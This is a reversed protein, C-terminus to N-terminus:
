SVNLCNVNHHFHSREDFVRTWQEHGVNDSLWFHGRKLPSVLSAKTPRWFGTKECKQRFTFFRKEPSGFGM